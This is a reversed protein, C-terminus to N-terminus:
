VTDYAATLDLFVAGTKLNQQFGNEIYTTLAVVQDCTSRGKRFGAQDPSILGEVTPSIRQLALHELLKYCVSLLSIPRYNTALSPDKGPKEIAIVKAKRWIKPISHTAMIRSFFKSLWTRAKPCLNKLFEVHINDYSPATAPKTKQLAASIEEETFPHPLSKDSMQQLLTRGQMRVKREFKKDHPAKAVQILFQYWEFAQTLNGIRMGYYNHGYRTDNTLYLLISTLFRL